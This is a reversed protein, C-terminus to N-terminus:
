AGGVPGRYLEKSTGQGHHPELSVVAEDPGGHEDACLRVVVKGQWSAAEVTLGSKKSGLRSAEGRQGKITGRFHAM